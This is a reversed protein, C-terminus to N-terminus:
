RHPLLKLLGEVGRGIAAAFSPPLNTKEM